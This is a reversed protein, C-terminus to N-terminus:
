SNNLSYYSKRSRNIVEGWLMFPKYFVYGLFMNYIVELIIVKILHMIELQAGYLISFMLAEVVEFVITLFIILLLLSIQNDLSIMKKFVGAIFGIILFPILSEGLSRGFSIDQLLGYVGGVALGVYEGAIIGIVCIFLIGINSYVGFLPFSNLFNHQILILLLIILFTVFAVIVKKM